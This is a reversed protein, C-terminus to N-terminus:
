FRIRLEVGAQLPRGQQRYANGLSEFYFTTYDTNLANRLWVDAQVIGRTFSIRGNLTGYFPQSATNEETWYIRGAGTYNLDFRINDLWSGARLTLLYSAIANFTHHPIFPVFNGDYDTGYEDGTQYDTFTAHTYGYGVSLSLAETLTGRVAAELGLSRSRGANVTIRGLGQQSFQSIQQNRTDMCFASLDAQLRGDALTLHTGVEYNWAYEPRYRTVANVDPEEVKMQEIMSAYQSFNADSAIAGMMSNRLAVTVLDSFMQINYGGSRYGRTATLYVNNGKSWEYSVAFKPLLQVYDTSHKGQYAASALLPAANEVTIPVPMGSMNITMSFGFDAIDSASQYNMKMKEYDLRLGITASLGDIWLDNFTSQHFIAGSLTPTDFSGGVNLSENNLALHMAPAGLSALGDFVDNVNGEIIDTIGQRHFDVPGDTHLWQYFGFVGTTWQWSRGQKSKLVVEESLTHMRQKQIIHFLNAPSFDQDLFMRDRLHQYGTVASLTFNRAQYEVNVGGNLLSRRYSGRENNAIKGIYPELDAPQEEPDVAGLYQYPYGGQDGYEYSVNIDVKWNSGPLYIGRMRGGASQSKDVREDDRYVNRFFGGQYNYFGGASFAFRESIRHYHTVSANYDNYMGGGLRLDTGQYSFPSKTHVKILGGMANRGYLTGQPGRLVEIREIDAYSFDFASKDVYPINDVYLGVSPTNIRSGVGRIYVATTLRSGYDPIFLNPVVGTLQKISQIHAAQMTQQSIIAASAPQERLKLNEKPNAIVVVEEIDVVQLTDVEEAYVSNSVVCLFAFLVTLQVLKNMPIYM